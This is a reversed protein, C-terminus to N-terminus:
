RNHRRAREQAEEAASAVFNISHFVDNRGQHAPHWPDFVLRLFDVDAGGTAIARGSPALQELWKRRSNRSGRCRRLIHCTFPEPSGCAPCLAAADELIPAGARVNGFTRVAKQHRSARSGYVLAELRRRHSRGWEGQVYHTLAPTTRVSAARMITEANRLKTRAQKGLAQWAMSGMPPAATGAAAALIRLSSTTWSQLVM